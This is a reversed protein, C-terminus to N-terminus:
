GKNETEIFSKIARFDILLSGFIKDCVCESLHLWKRADPMDESPVILENVGNLNM